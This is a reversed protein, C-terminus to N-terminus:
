RRVADLLSQFLTNAAVILQASAQYHQQFRVLNAAEEDLNVGSVAERNQIAQDLITKQAKSNIELQHTRAGVGSVMQGYGTQLNTTKDLIAQTQLGVLALANGNDSVAGSNKEITFVDGDAPAGSITFTLGIYDSNGLELGLDIEQGPQYAITDVSAGGISVDFAGAIADYTLEINVPQIGALETDSTVGPTSIKGTGLNQDSIASRLPAAAAILNANDIAMSLGASATRTPAILFSDGAAPTGSLQLRFGESPFTIFGDADVGGDTIVQNDSLRTLVWNAGDYKMQYDSTTLSSADTFEFKVVAPDNSNANTTAPLATAPNGLLGELGFFKGGPDGYTDLGQRHQENVAMALGVAIRGLSNQTTELVDRRFDLVGGLEGGNIFHSIIPGKGDSGAVIELKSPDQANRTTSIGRADAGLVLIQGNGVFVNIAGNDQEVTTVPIYEALQRLLEDRQDLLDNPPQGGSKGWAITIDYNVKAISESLSNIRGTLSSLQDNVSDSLSTLRDSISHFRAVLSESESILVQRAPVSAPNDAVGQLANFFNQLVPALGADPDALLNDVQSAMHHYTALRSHQSTHTRVLDVSFQDYMRRVSAVNVGSGIFGAGTSQPIRTVLDARQRSFGPTNVNSINHGTTALATQAALLGSIGSSLFDAM